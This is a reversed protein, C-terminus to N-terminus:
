TFWLYLDIVTFRRLLDLTASRRQWNHWVLHSIKQQQKPSQRHAAEELEVLMQARVITQYLAGKSRSQIVHGYAALIGRAVKASANADLLRGEQLDLLAQYWATEFTGPKM